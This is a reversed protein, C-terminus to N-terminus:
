HKWIGFNLYILNMSRLKSDLTLVVHAESTTSVNMNTSRPIDVPESFVWGLKTEIAALSSKELAKVNGTVLSWYFDSGILLDIENGADGTDAFNLEAFEPLNQVYNLPQKKLPLCILPLCLASIEFSKNKNEVRPLINLKVRDVLSDKSVSNAFTNLSINEKRERTLKLIKTVRESIFTRELGSDFLARIKVIQNNKPNGILLKATQLLVPTKNLVTNTNTEDTPNGSKELSDKKKTYLNRFQASRQLLLM